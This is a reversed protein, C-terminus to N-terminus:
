YDSFQIYAHRFGAFMRSRLRRVAVSAFTGFVLEAKSEVASWRVSGELEIMRERHRRPISEYDLVGRCLLHLLEDEPAPRYRWASACPVRGSLAADQLAPHVAVITQGDLSRYQLREAVDLHIKDGPFRYHRCARAGYLYPGPHQDDTPPRAGEGVLTEEALRRDSSSLLCDFDKAENELAEAGRLLVFRCGSEDLAGFIRDIARRRALSDAM